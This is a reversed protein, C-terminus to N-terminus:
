QFYGNRRLWRRFWQSNSMGILALMAAYAVLLLIMRNETVFNGVWSRRLNNVVSSHKYIMLYRIHLLENNRVVIYKDPVTGGESGEVQETTRKVGPHNTVVQALAVASISPGLCSRDWALGRTSYTMCVGLEESLYIGEGFLSVKNRHQQLGYNLISYFNDFRSGHYAWCTEKDRVDSLWRDTSQTSVELVHSPPSGKSRSVVEATEHRDLSRLKLRSSSGTLVWVVLRLQKQEMELGLELRNRITALSPLNRIMEVLGAVDREQSDPNYFMPPFPRLSTDQRYSTAAAIFLSMQVDCALMDQDLLSIITARIDEVSEDKDVRSVEECRGSIVRPIDAQRARLGEV